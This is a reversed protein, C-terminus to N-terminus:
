TAGNSRSQTMLSYRLLREIVDFRWKLVWVLSIMQAIGSNGWARRRFILAIM